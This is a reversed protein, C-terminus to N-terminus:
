TLRLYRSEACFPIPAGHESLAVSLPISDDRTLRERLLRRTHVDLLRTPGNDSRYALIAGDSSFVVTSIYGSHGTFSKGLPIGTQADWLRISGDNSGSALVKSDPSFAVSRVSDTHGILPEGLSTGTQSDWLRITRDSSGSALVAGNPSFALSRICDTRGTLPEGLPTGTRVDWFRVTDDNSGSALVVGDPSFALSSICDDHGTLPEGLPEGNQTDWLRITCDNSGSALITGDQSFAVSRVRDSRSTLPEESPTAIQFDWFRATEDNSGSALITGDPSFALCRVSDGHGTLPEGLPMGNQADWLRITCDNSGSALIKGDPSFAISCVYSTHKTIIQGLPMGTQTDWLRITRDDSGSALIGDYPSFAVSRVWDKHGILPEALPAGTHADWLRVTNDSSGSALVQGDPSFAVSCVHSSHGTLPDGLPTGAHVNWLQITGDDSGSALVAGDPSFTVSRVWDSHLTLPEDLPTATRVDWFRVTKDNSGSALVAGDPSFAVSCVGDSHNTLAEGLPMGTQADWMQVMGDGAGSALIAGDPSFAVATVPASASRTWLNSGWTLAQLGRVIRINALYGYCEWLVTERPCYPLASAYIHFAGISIPESFATIFRQADNWLTTLPDLGSMRRSIVIAEATAGLLSMAEFWYLLKQKSFVEFGAMALQANSVSMDLMPSPVGETLHISWARCSYRLSATVEREVVDQIEANAKPRDSLGCINKKLFRVMMDLCRSALLKHHHITDIYYVQGGCRQENVLLDRVSTHILGLSETSSPPILLLSNLDVLIDKRLCQIIDERHAVKFISSDGYLAAIVQLSVPHPAVVLTGIIRYLLEQKTPDLKINEFAKSLIQHYLDDLGGWTSPRELLDLLRDVPSGGGIYTIATHAWQFLGQSMEVLNGVDSPSPWDEPLGHGDRIQTCAHKIFRTLDDMVDQSSDLDEVHWGRPELARLLSAELRCTLLFKVNTPFSSYHQNILQAFDIADKPNECEDLGDVVILIPHLQRKLKALPAVLLTQFQIDLRQDGIDENEQVSKLVANRVEPILSSGLQRALACVVRANLTNHGRRFHFIACSARYKWNHVATSAITSKGRGAMGRIWLVRDPTFSDRIWNDIRELIEVRTGPFC